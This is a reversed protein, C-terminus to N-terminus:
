CLIYPLVPYSTYVPILWAPSILVYPNVHIRNAAQSGSQMNAHMRPGQQIGITLLGATFVLLVVVHPRLDPDGQVIFLLLVLSLFALLTVVNIAILTSFNVGSGLAGVFIDKIWDSSGSAAM